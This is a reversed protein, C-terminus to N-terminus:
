RVIPLSFYFTSGEGLKSEVWIQGGHAEVLRRCVLLGLGLGPKNSSNQQLREFSQFLRAQDEPSIGSGEDKIGVLIHEGKKEASVHIETNPPSYKVANNLLNRIIQRVRIEDIDLPPLDEAISLSLSHSDLREIETEAINRIFQGINTRTVTLQLHDSQYRSLEVMNDLIQALDESSHVAEELLEKSDDSNIGESMAVSLSGTIITLPTRLEHSVLSIFEERIHETKSRETIDRFVLVVGTIEGKEDRIPAGSDDIPIETGDKKVLIVHNALDVIDGEQIVRTVPNEVVERTEENVIHLVETIPSNAAENYSWGTLTEAVGNMFTIKGAEDTAIVGDGISALTTAWRQESQKLDRFLLDYPNRLGTEILAKYILYFSVIKLLHGIMNAIGYADTYLTFAMESVITIAISAVVLRFVGTSFENRHRFLLWIAGALIGSIVYESIVKFTTLGTGEIFAAPFVKWYFISALVLGVVLCYALFAMNTRLKRHILLAAALLSLSELYRASIWLQTALNTGHESFVGMGKYALTHVFDLGGVFLYAIGIFLLYNNDILRRSNWAIAFIAFAIVISFVEAFSHFLLYNFRSLFYLGALVAIGIIGTVIIRSWVGRIGRSINWGRVEDVTQM